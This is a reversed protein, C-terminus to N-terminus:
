ILLISGHIVSRYLLHHALCLRSDPSLPLFTWTWPVAWTNMKATDILGGSGPGWRKAENDKGNRLRCRMMSMFLSRAWESSSNPTHQTKPAGQSASSPTTYMGPVAGALALCLCAWTYNSVECLTRFYWLRLSFLVSLALKSRSPPCLNRRQKTRATTELQCLM